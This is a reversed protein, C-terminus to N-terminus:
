EFKLEELNNALLLLLGYLCSFMAKIAENISQLRYVGYGVHHYISM